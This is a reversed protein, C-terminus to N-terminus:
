LNQQDDRRAVSYGPVCVSAGGSFFIITGVTSALDSYSDLEIYNLKNQMSKTNAYGVSIINFEEM